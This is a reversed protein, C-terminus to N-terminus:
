KGSGRVDKWRYKRAKALNIRAARLKAPSKSRGIHSCHEVFYKFVEPSLKIKVGGNQKRMIRM